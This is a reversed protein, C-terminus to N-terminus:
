QFTDRASSSTFRFLVFWVCEIILSSSLILQGPHYNSSFKMTAPPHLHPRLRFHLPFSHTWLEDCAFKLVLFLENTKWTVIERVTGPQISLNAASGAADPDMSTDDNEGPPVLLSNCLKNSALNEM